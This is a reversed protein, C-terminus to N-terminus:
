EDIAMLWESWYRKWPGVDDASPLKAHQIAVTTRGDARANIAFEATGPGIAIRVNKSTPRSRLETQFRPFLDGRDAADLLKERLANGDALVTRSANVTFMGDPGQHPLRLGTIREYGVTVAQAWWSDIGQEVELYTAIAGHGDGNRPWADIADAWENWGRGTAARVAEDTTDPEAAWARGRGKQGSRVRAAGDQPEGTKELRKRIRDKLSEQRTM